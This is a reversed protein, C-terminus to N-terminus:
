HRWSVRDKCDAGSAARSLGKAALSVTDGPVFTCGLWVTVNSADPM